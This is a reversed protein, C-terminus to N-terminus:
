SLVCSITPRTPRYPPPEVAGPAHGTRGAQGVVEPTQEAGRHVPKLLVNSWAAAPETPFPRRTSVIFQLRPFNKNLWQGAERQSLDSCLQDFDDILVVGRQALPSDSDPFAAILWRTLDLGLTFLNRYGEELSALPRPAFAGTRIMVQRGNMSLEDPRPLLGGACARRVIELTRRATEKGAQAGQHLDALWQGPDTLCGDPRFLTLFRASKRGSNQIHNADPSCDTQLRAGYGGAFWGPQGQAYVTRKLRSMDEIIHKQEKRTGAGPWEVIAPVTPAQPDNQWSAPLRDPDDGSVLYHAVYPSTKRPWKRRTADGETVYLEAQIEGFPEDRRVWGDALPLLERVAGSGALGVAIGQLLTTKGLGDPAVLATRLRVGDQGMLDLNIDAFGKLNKLSIRRLYM